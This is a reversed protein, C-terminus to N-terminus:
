ENAQCFPGKTWKKFNNKRIKVKSVEKFFKRKIQNTLKLVGRM